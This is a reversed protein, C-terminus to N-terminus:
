NLQAFQTVCVVLAVDPAWRWKRDLECTRGPKGAALARTVDVLTQQVGPLCALVTGGAYVRDPRVRADAHVAPGATIAGLVDVVASDATTLYPAVVAARTVVPDAAEM